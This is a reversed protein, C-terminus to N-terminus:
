MGSGSRRRGESRRAPSKRALEAPLQELALTLMSLSYFGVTGEGDLAAFVQSIRRRQDRSARQHFWDDLAEVGSHFGARDHSSRLAEFRVTM